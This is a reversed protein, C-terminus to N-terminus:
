VFVWGGRKTSIKLTSTAPTAPDDMWFSPAVLLLWVCADANQRNISRLWFRALRWKAIYSRSATKTMRLREHVTCGFLGCKFIYIDSHFYWNIACKCTFQKNNNSLPRKESIGSRGGDAAAVDTSTMVFKWQFDLSSSALCNRGNAFNSSRLAAFCRWYSHARNAIYDNIKFIIINNNLYVSSHNSYYYHTFSTSALVFSQSSWLSSSVAHVESAM